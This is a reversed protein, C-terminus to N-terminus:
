RYRRPLGLRRARHRAAGQAPEIRWAARMWARTPRWGRWCNAKAAVWISCRPTAAGCDRRYHRLRQAGAAGYLPRPKAQTADPERWSMRAGDRVHQGPLRSGTRNAGGRGGPVCRARLQIATRLVGRRVQPRRLARVMEQSQYSRYLWDSSFSIVLFRAAVAEFAAALSGSGNTLDFYDMAKTIYLYSNADFRDVFQSGRYRLYSEM